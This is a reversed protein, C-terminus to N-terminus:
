YVGTFPKRAITSAVHNILTTVDFVPLGIENQVAAAYPPLDTCEFLLSRVDPNAAVLGRAVGVVEAKVKEFDLVGAEEVVAAQFHPCEDMSAVVTSIEAGAKAMALHEPKLSRRSSAMVGIKAKPGFIRAMFPLQLLSSMFVPVELECALLEQHVIMLGCNGTIAAVGKEVLSRGAALFAKSSDPVNLQKLSQIGVGKVIEYCVPFAFTTPNGVTGPPCPINEELMLIGVPRGYSMQGQRTRYIM